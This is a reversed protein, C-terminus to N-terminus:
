KRPGGAVLEAISVAEQAGAQMARCCLVLWGAVGEATGEAFGRAADRYNVPQRMWSVEPVGLGHPDLGTAITVLRSVARAVVGDAGGFPKLTLLEGHAVAAVVPASARTPRTVVDALVELRPGIGADPRPRGLRDADVQDAAALMHLRALAQLPARRWVGVLPGGGGELAQAVRLAGALVPDGVGLGHPAPGGLDDLRVPGGDLVSSARAARLAAEAATVPWGRLNAPHRHARGLADRARDSAEAVGPLEM